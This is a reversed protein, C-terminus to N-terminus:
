IPISVLVFCIVYLNIVHTTRNIHRNSKSLYFSRYYEIFKILLRDIYDGFSTSDYNIEDHCTDHSFLFEAM